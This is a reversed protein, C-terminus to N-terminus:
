CRIFNTGMKNIREQRLSFYCKPLPHLPKYLRDYVTQLTPKTHTSQINLKEIPNICDDSVNEDSEQKSFLFPFQEDDAIVDEKM